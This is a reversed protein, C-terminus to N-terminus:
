LGALGIYLQKFPQARGNFFTVLHTGIEHHLLANVRVAPIKASQSILLKSQSVLLGVVDERVEVSATFDSSQSQYYGIEKRALQALEDANVVGKNSNERTRSPLSHLLEKAIGITEPDTGGFLRISGHLFRANERDSLLTIKSDLEKRSKKFCDRWM